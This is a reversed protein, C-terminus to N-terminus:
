AASRRLGERFDRIAALGFIATLAVAIPGGPLRGPVVAALGLAASAVLAIPDATPREHGLRHVLMRLGLFINGAAGVAVAHWPSVAGTFAALAVAADFAGLPAISGFAGPAVAAVRQMGRAIGVAIQVVTWVCLADRLSVGALTIRAFVGDGFFASMTLSASLLVTSEVQNLLGLHFMGTHSQEWYTVTAATPIVLTLAVCWAPSVGLALATLLAIEVVAFADLGHDLFEGRPSCQGTRRAHGGDANDCWVYVQLTVAAVLFVPGAHPRRALLAVVGALLMLQGAWTISNPSVSAPVRPLLPDILARRYYPLLISRDQVHYTPPTM